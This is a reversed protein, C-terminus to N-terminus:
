EKYNLAPQYFLEEAKIEKKILGQEYCYRCFTNLVKENASFGYSWYDKGMVKVTEEFEQGYWPLSDYAWALKQIYIFNQRKAEVFANFITQGIEPHDKLLEKRVGVVHMIPFIGTSKFFDQEVEKSNSFLRQIRQDGKVFAKPQAAHFLADVEGSILMESEDMGSPGNVIRIGDPNVQEQASIKGAVDKSSDERSIVWTVEKPDFGYDDMLIGRIWTLSSSSYGATGIRKGKLHGVKRVSGDSRVFISKHRFIRLPFVPILEYNKIGENAFAFIFPGLGLEMVDYPSKGSHAMTNLDGIKQKEFSYDYGEIKVTKDMLAKVRPVDYGAMKLSKHFSTNTSELETVGSFASAGLTSIMGAGLSGTKLFQRRDFLSKNDSM